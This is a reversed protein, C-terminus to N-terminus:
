RVTLSCFGTFAQHWINALSLRAGGGSGERNIFERLDHYTLSAPGKENGGENDFEELKRVDNLYGAISNESLSKELRLYNEFNKSANKWTLSM